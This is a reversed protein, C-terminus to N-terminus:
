RSEAYIIDKGMHFPPKVISNSAKQRLPGPRSHRYDVRSDRLFSFSENDIIVSVGDQSFVQDKDGAVDLKMTYQWGACGGKEVLLRLGRSADGTGLM